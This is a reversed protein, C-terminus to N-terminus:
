SPSGLWRWARAALRRLRGATSRRPGTGLASPVGADRVPDTGPLDPWSMLAKDLSPGDSEGEPLLEIEDATLDIGLQGHSEHYHGKFWGGDWRCHTTGQSDTFLVTGTMGPRVTWSVARIVKIRDGPRPNTM